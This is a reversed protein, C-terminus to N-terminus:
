YDTTELIYVCCFVVFTIVCVVFSSLNVIGKGTQGVPPDGRLALINRIDNKKAQKIATDLLERSMNTCTLHMNAVMDKNNVQANTVLDMTLDSTTGGAGWTVDIYLPKHMNNMKAIRTNLNEVGKDTKPPFYEFAVWKKGQKKKDEVLSSIKRTGM